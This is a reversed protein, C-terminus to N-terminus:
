GIKKKKKERKVRKGRGTSRGIKGARTIEKKKKQIEFCDEGWNKKETRAPEKILLDGSIIPGRPPRYWTQGGLGCSTQGKLKKQTVKVLSVPFDKRMRGGCDGVKDEKQRRLRKPSHGDMRQGARYLNSAIKGIGSFRNQASKDGM